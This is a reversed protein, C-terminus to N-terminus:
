ALRSALHRSPTGDPILGGLYVIRKVDAAAAADAFREAQRLETADFDAAAGEMSHILYYAVDVGDLAKELGAGTSADGLVLEDIATGSAEVRAKSRAFGRVAHGDHKLRPALAAGVYGSAGTVLTQM